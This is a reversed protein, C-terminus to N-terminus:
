PQAVDGQSDRLLTLKELYLGMSHDYIGDFWQGKKWARWRARWHDKIGQWTSLERINGYFNIYHLEGHHKYMAAPVPVPVTPIIDNCNRFRHHAVDMGKVYERDGLRPSGFTFLELDKHGAWSLEQAAYTAMAAGLSHGTVLIHQGANAEVHAITPDWLKRAERRFGEHVKGPGHRKPIADLDALLDKLQTPQTGRYAIGIMHDNKLLYGEANGNEMFQVSTWGLATFAPIGQDPDLYAANACGAALVAKDLFQPDTTEMRM